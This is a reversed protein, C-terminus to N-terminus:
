LAALLAALMLIGTPFCLAGVRAPISFRERLPMSRASLTNPSLLLARAGGFVLVISLVIYVAVPSM